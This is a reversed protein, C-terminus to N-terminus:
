GQFLIQFVKRTSGDRFTCLLLKIKRQSIGLFIPEIHCTEIELEFILSPTYLM